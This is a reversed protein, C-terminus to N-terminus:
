ETGHGIRLIHGDPDKVLMERMFWPKTDPESLILAGKSKITEFYEDVNDVNIALWTGKHGQNGKCFFIATNGDVVGGFSPEEDWSWHEEFGLVDTYYAISRKVDDSYLIPIVSEIKM